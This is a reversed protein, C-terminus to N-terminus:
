KSETRLLAFCHPRRRYIKYAEIFYYNIAIKEIKSPKECRGSPEVARAENARAIWLSKNNNSTSNQPSPPRVDSVAQTTHCEQKGSQAGEFHRNEINGDNRM